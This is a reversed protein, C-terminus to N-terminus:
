LVHAELEAPTAVTVDAGYTGLILCGRRRLDQLFLHVQPFELLGAVAIKRANPRRALWQEFQENVFNLNLYSLSQHALYFAYHENHRGVIERASRRFVDILDFVEYEKRQLAHLWEFYDPATCDVRLAVVTPSRSSRTLEGDESM